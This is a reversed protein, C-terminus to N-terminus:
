HHSHPHDHDHGHPRAAYELTRQELLSDAVMGKEVLVAALAAQFHDYYRYSDDTDTVPMLKSHLNEADWMAITAILAAQFEPWSFVGKEHLAIAIGFVRGQWPESFLVEGNAMPPQLSADM